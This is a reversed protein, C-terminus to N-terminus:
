NYVRIEVFSYDQYLRDDSDSVVGTASDVKGTRLYISDNDVKGGGYIDSESSFGFINSPPIVQVKGIFAGVLTATYAGILDLGAGRTWVLTGGLQNQLVNVTPNGTGSQWIEAIYVKCDLADDKLDEYLNKLEQGTTGGSGTTDIANIKTQFNTKNM